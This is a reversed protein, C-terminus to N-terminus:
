KSFKVILAIIALKILGFFPFKTHYDNYKIVNKDKEAFYQM